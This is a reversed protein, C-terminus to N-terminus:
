VLFVCAFLVCMLAVVLLPLAVGRCGTDFVCSHSWRTAVTWRRCAVGATISSSRVLASRARCASSMCRVAVRTRWLRETDEAM